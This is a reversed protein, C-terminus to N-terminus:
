DGAQVLGACRRLARETEEVLERVIEEAPQIRTAYGLRQGAWLPLAEIDGTTDSVAAGVAYRMAPSGDGMTAVVEGEGPREGTPPRGAAEWNAVTSNRLTRHAADPWGSDFVRSYVTDTEDSEVVKDKYIPHAASEESVIFRTGIYVGDAGLALAAAVGRGDGIGGSAVVLTPAVADIVRPALPLTGVEGRVHGGADRGQAAIVDVGVDAAKRAEEVSGVQHVIM